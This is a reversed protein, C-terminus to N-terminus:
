KLPAHECNAPHRRRFFLLIVPWDVEDVLSGEAPSGCAALFGLPLGSSLFRM